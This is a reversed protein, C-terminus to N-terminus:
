RGFRYGKCSPFATDARREEQAKQKRVLCLAGQCSFQGGTPMCAICVGACHCTLQNSCGSDLGDRAGRLHHFNDRCTCHLLAVPTPWRLQGVPSSHDSLESCAYLRLMIGVDFIPAVDLHLRPLRFWVPM